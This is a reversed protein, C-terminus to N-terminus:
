RCEDFLQRSESSLCDWETTVGVGPDSEEPLDLVGGVSQESADDPSPVTEPSKVGVVPITAGVLNGRSALGWQWQLKIEYGECTM